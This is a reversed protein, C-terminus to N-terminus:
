SRTEYWRYLYGRHLPWTSPICFESRVQRMRANTKTFVWLEKAAWIALSPTDTEKPKLAAGGTGISNHKKLAATISMLSTGQLILSNSTPQVGWITQESFCPTLHQQTRVRIVEKGGKEPVRYLIQHSHLSPTPSHVMDCLYIKRVLRNEKYGQAKKPYEQPENTGRRIHHCLGRSCLACSM